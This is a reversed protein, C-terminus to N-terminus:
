KEEEVKHNKNLILLVRDYLKFAWKACHGYGCGYGGCFFTACLLPVTFEADWGRKEGILYLAFFGLMIVLGIWLPEVPVLQRPFKNQEEPNM